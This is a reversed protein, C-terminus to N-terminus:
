AAPDDEAHRSQKKKELLLRCVLNERSQLESTHEESRLYLETPGSVGEKETFRVTLAPAESDFDIEVPHGAVARPYPRNMTEALPGPALSEDKWPGWGDHDNSWYARGAAMRDTEDLMRAVYDTAGEGSMDLGFEGLVIPAELREATTRVSGSWQEISADIREK